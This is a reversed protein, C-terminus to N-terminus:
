KKIEKWPQGTGVSTNGSLIESNYVLLEEGSRITNSKGGHRMIELTSAALLVKLPAVEKCM